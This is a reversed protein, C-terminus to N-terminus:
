VSSQFVSRAEGLRAELFTAGNEMGPYNGDALPPISFM